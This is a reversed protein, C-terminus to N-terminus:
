AACGWGFLIVQRTQGTSTTQQGLINFTYIQLIWYEAHIAAIFHSSSPQMSDTKYAAAFLTDDHGGM